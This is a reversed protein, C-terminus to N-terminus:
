ITTNDHELYAKADFSWAAPLASAASEAQEARDKLVGLGREIDVLQGFGAAKKLARLSKNLADASKQAEAVKAEFGSLIKM